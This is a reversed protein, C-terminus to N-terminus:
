TNKQWTIGEGDECSELRGMLATLREATRDHLPEQHEWQGLVERVADLLDNLIEDM